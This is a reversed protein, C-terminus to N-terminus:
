RARAREWAERFIRARRAIEDPTHATESVLAGGIAVAAAGARAYAAINELTIGGTPVFDIDNLPARVAQLYAPGVTDAPFLKLMRCGAAHANQAETPTFVGPLHLIDLAQSRAVSAPDFNPSVLFQAGAEVAAEVQAPTRVTGAGILLQEAFKDRLRALADLAGRSNLTVEIVGIEGSRLAEGIKLIEDAGFDGRLIAILGTHKILAASHEISM